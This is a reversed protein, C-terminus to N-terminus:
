PLLLLIHVRVKGRKRGMLVSIRSESRDKDDKKQKEKEVKALKEKEKEADKAKQLLEKAAEKSDAHLSRRSTSGKLLSLVSSKKGPTSTSIPNYDSDPKSRSQSLSTYSTSQTPSSPTPITAPIQM